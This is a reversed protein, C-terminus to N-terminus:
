ELFSHRNAIRSKTIKQRILFADPNSRVASRALTQYLIATQLHESLWDHEEPLQRYLSMLSDHMSFNVSNAVM